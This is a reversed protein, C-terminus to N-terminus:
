KKKKNVIKDVGSIKRKDTENFGILCEDLDDRFIYGIEKGNRILNKLKDKNDM